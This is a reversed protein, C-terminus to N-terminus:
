SYVVDTHHGAVQCSHSRELSKRWTLWDSCMMARSKHCSPWSFTEIWNTQSQSQILQHSVNCSQSSTTKPFWPGKSDSQLNKLYFFATASIVSLIAQAVPSFHIILFQKGSWRMTKAPGAVASHSMKAPEQSTPQPRMAPSGFM